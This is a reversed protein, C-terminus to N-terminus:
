TCSGSGTTYGSGGDVIDVATIAGGSTFVRIDGNIGAAHSVTVEPDSLYGSGATTIAVSSIVGSGNVTPTLVAGSGGGSDSKTTSVSWLMDQPLLNIVERATDSAWQTIAIEDDIVGVLDEVRSKVSSSAAM